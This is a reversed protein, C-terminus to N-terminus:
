SSGRTILNSNNDAFMKLKSCDSNTTPHNEVVPTKHIFILLSQPYLSSKKTNKYFKQGLIQLAVKLGYGSSLIKSQDLNFCIASSMKFAMYPLFCLSFLLFQKNCAIEGKRVM